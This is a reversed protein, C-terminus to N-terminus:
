VKSANFQHGRSPWYNCPRNGCSNAPYGIIVLDYEKSVQQMFQTFKKGMLLESTNPPIAGRTIINLNKVKTTKTVQELTKDGILLDSLGSDM